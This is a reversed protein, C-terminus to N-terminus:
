ITQHTCFFNWPWILFFLYITQRTNGLPCEAFPCHIFVHHSTQRTDYNASHKEWIQSHKETSNNLTMINALHKKLLISPLCLTQRTDIDKGLTKLKVSSLSITQRTDSYFVSSLSYSVRCLRRNQYHALASLYTYSCSFRNMTRAIIDDISLNVWVDWHDNMSCVSFTLGLM